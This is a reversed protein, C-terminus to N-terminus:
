DAVVVIVEPDGDVVDLVKYGRRTAEAVAAEDDDASFIDGYIGGVTMTIYSINM